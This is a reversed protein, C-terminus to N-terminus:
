PRFRAAVPYDVLALRREACAAQCGDLQGTCGLLRSSLPQARPLPPWRDLEHPARNSTAVVVCGEEVLVELLGKLAAATFTDSIQPSSGPALPGPWPLSPRCTATWPQPPVPKQVGTM